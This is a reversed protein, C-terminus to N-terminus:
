GKKGRSAANAILAASMIALSIAMAVTTDKEMKSFDTPVQRAKVEAIKELWYKNSM